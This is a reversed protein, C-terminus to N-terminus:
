PSLSYAMLSKLFARTIYFFERNTVQGLQEAQPFHRAISQHELQALTGYFKYTFYIYFSDQLDGLIDEGMISTCLGYFFNYRKRWNTMFTFSQPLGARQIEYGYTIGM